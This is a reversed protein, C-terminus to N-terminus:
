GTGAPVANRCQESCSVVADNSLCQSAPPHLGQLNQGDRNTINTFTQKMPDELLSLKSAVTPKNQKFLDFTDMCPTNPLVTHPHCPVPVHAAVSATVFFHPKARFMVKDLIPILVVPWLANGHFVSEATTLLTEMAPTLHGFDANL